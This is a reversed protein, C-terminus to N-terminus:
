FAWSLELGITRGRDPYYGTVYRTSYNEDGLNRGFLTATLLTQSIQFDYQINADLRTYDGIGDVTSLGMPSSTSTWKDVQNASFNARLAQWQYGLNLGFLNEPTTAGIADTTVGNSTSEGDLMHTWSLKYTFDKGITGAALIELGTRLEDSETYYYYTAGNEVYTTTSATKGNETDISFWNVAPKFWEVPAAEVGVEIREQKEAHLPSTKPLPRM